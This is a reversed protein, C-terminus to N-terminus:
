TVLSLEDMWLLDVVSIICWILENTWCKVLIMQGNRRETLQILEFGDICALSQSALAFFSMGNGNRLVKLTAKDQLRTGFPIFDTKGPESLLRTCVRTFILVVSAHSFTSLIWNCYGTLRVLAFGNACVVVSNSSWILEDWALWQQRLAYADASTGISRRIEKTLFWIENEM